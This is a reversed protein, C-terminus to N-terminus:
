ILEEAPTVPFGLKTSCEACMGNPGASRKQCLACFTVPKGAPETNAEDLYGNVSSPGGGSAYVDYVDYEGGFSSTSRNEAQTRRTRRTRAKCLEYTDTGNEGAFIRIQREEVLEAAAPDVYERIEYRATRRLASGTQQGDATLRRIIHQRARRMKRDSIIEERDAAGHAKAVASSHLQESMAQICLQRTRRSVAMVYGALEWDEETIKRSAAGERGDLLLLGAAVKLRILECHSDLPDVYQESLRARAADDIATRAVEPVQLSGPATLVAPIERPDPVKPLGDDGLEVRDPRGLDSTPLWLFRQPLGGDIGDLLIRARLVQTGVIVGMRYTHPEIIIKTSKQANAFGMREGMFALRMVATLTSGLRTALAGLADIEGATFIASVTREEGVDEFVRAMGEGTGIPLTPALVTGFPWKLARSAAQECTGKGGGSPAVLAVNLNLSATGGVLKPLTVCPPVKSIAEVLLVGLVGWPGARLARATDCVHQLSPRSTWFDEDSSIM